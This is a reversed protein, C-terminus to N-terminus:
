PPPDPSIRAATALSLAGFTPHRLSAGDATADAGLGTVQDSVAIAPALWTLWIAHASATLARNLEVAAATRVAPDPVTRILELADDVREDVVRGINAGADDPAEVSDSSWRAFQSDPDPGGELLELLLDFEGREVAQEVELSGLGVADVVLGCGAELQRAVDAALEDAGDQPGTVIRLSGVEDALLAGGEPDAPAEIREAVHGPVGPSFLGTAPVASWPLTEVLRDVDLCAALALRREASAWPNTEGNTREAAGNVVLALVDSAPGVLLGDVPGPALTPPPEDLLERRGLPDSALGLDLDGIEVRRRRVAESPSVEVDIGDLVPLPAGDTGARWHGERRDLRLSTSSAEVAVFPGTGRPIRDDPGDLDDPHVIWGLPGTLAAPFEVWALSGPPGDPTSLHVRLTTPAVVEVSHLPTGGASSAGERHALLNAAIAGVDLLTGDSFTIPEPRLTLDWSGFPVAEDAVELVPEISAVLHPVPEGHEDLVALPDVVAAVVLECSHDCPSASPSWGPALLREVALTVRGGRRAVEGAGGSDDPSGDGAACAAVLVAVAVGVVTRAGLGGLAGM